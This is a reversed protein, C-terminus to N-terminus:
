WGVGLNKERESRVRVKDDEGELWNVLLQRMLANFSIGEGDLYGKSREVVDVPLYVAYRKSEIDSIPRGM